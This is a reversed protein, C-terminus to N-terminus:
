VGSAIRTRSGIRRRKGFPSDRAVKHGRPPNGNRWGASDGTSLFAGSFMPPFAARQAYRSTNTSIRKIISLFARNFAKFWTALTTSLRLVM